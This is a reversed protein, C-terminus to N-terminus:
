LEDAGRLTSAVAAVLSPQLPQLDGTCAVLITRLQEVIEQARDGPLASLSGVEDRLHELEDRVKAAEAASEGELEDHLRVAQQHADRVTLLLDALFESM